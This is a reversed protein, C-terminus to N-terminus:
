ARAALRYLLMYTGGSALPTWELNKRKAWFEDQSHVELIYGQDHIYRGLEEIAKLRQTPDLTNREQEILANVKDDNHTKAKYFHIGLMPDADPFTAWPSLTIGEFNGALRDAFLKVVEKPVLRARVGIEGLQNAIVESVERDKLWVGSSTHLETEFGSSYGAEALLQKARVPDYPYPKLNRDYGPWGSSFPGHLLEGYGELVNKVIAERDVAYNVAQRVRVDDFPKKTANILYQQARGGKGIQRMAMLETDPGSQVEKLQGAAPSAIIQAGGTKLEAVRATPDPVIRLVLRQPFVRGEWYDQNAELM